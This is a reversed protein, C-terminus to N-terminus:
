RLGRVALIAELLGRSRPRWGRLRAAHHLDLWPLGAAFSVAALSGHNVCAYVLQHGPVSGDAALNHLARRADRPLAAIAYVHGEARALANYLGARSPSQLGRQRCVRDVRRRVEAMAPRDAELAAARVAALVAPHLRSQGADSRRRRTTPPRRALRRGARELSQELDFSSM